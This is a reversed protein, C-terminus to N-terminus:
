ALLISLVPAGAALVMAVVVVTAVIRRRRQRDREGSRDRGIM